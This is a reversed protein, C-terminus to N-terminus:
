LVFLEGAFMDFGAALTQRYYTYKILSRKHSYQLECFPCQLKVKSSESHQDALHRKLNPKRTFTQECQPCGFKQAPLVRDSSM